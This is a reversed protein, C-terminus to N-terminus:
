KHIRTSRLSKDILKIPSSKLLERSMEKGGGDVRVGKKEHAVM